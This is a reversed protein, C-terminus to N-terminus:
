LYKRKFCKGCEGCHTQKEEIAGGGEYDERKETWYEPLLGPDHTYDGQVAGGIM